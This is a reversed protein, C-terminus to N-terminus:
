QNLVWVDGATSTTCQEKTLGEIKTTSEQILKPYSLLEIYLYGQNSINDTHLITTNSDDFTCITSAEGSGNLSSIQSSSDVSITSNNISCITAGLKSNYTHSVIFRNQGFKEMFIKFLNYSDSYGGSNTQNSIQTDTGATVTTGSITAIIGNLYYNSDSTHAIFIHTNDIERTAVQHGKKKTTSLRQTSGKTITEGSTTCVICDLYGDSVSGGGHFVIVFKNNELLAIDYSYSAYSGIAIFSTATASLITNESITVVYSNLSSTGYGVFIHTNDIKKARIHSNQISNSSSNLLYPTGATITTGSITAIMCSIKKDNGSNNGIVFVHTKDVAEVCVAYQYSNGSFLSTTVSGTTITGNNLKIVVAYLYNYGSTNFVMFATKNDLKTALGTDVNSYGITKTSQTLSGNVFEVFTNANITNTNAKYQEIIGNVIDGGSAGGQKKYVKGIM